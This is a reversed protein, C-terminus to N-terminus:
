HRLFFVSSYILFFSIFFDNVKLIHSVLMLIMSSHREDELKLKLVYQPKYSIKCTRHYKLFVKIRM